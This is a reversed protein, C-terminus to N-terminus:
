DGKERAKREAIRLTDELNRRLWDVYEAEDLYAVPLFVGAGTYPCRFYCELYGKEPNWYVEVCCAEAFTWPALVERIRDRVAPNEEFYGVAVKGEVMRM